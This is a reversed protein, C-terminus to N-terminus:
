WWEIEQKREQMVYDREHQSWEKLYGTMLRNDLFQCRFEVRVGNYAAIRNVQDSIFDVVDEIVERAERGEIQIHDHFRRGGILKEEPTGQLLQNKFEFQAEM